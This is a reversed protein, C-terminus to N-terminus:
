WSSVSAKGDSNGIWRDCKWQVASNGEVVLFWPKGMDNRVRVEGGDFTHVHHISSDCWHWHDYHAGGQSAAAGGHSSFTRYRAHYRSFFGTGRQGNMKVCSGHDKFWMTSGTSDSWGAALLEALASAGSANQSGVNVPDKTSSCSSNYLWDGNSGWHAVAAVTWFPLATLVVVVQVLGLRLRRSWRFGSISRVMNRGRERLWGLTCRPHLSTHGSNRAITGFLVISCWADLGTRPQAM